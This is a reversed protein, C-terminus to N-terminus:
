CHHKTQIFSICVFKGKIRNSEEDIECTNTTNSTKGHSRLDQESVDKILNARIEALDTNMKQVM